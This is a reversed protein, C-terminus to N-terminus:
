FYGNFEKEEPEYYKEYAENWNDETAEDLIESAEALDRSPVHAGDKAYDLLAKAAKKDDNLIVTSQTEGDDGQSVFVGNGLSARIVKGDKDEVLIVNYGM